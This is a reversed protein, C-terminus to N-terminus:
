LRGIGGGRPKAAQTRIDKLVQSIRSWEVPPGATPFKGTGDGRWGWAETKEVGAAGSSLVLCLVVFAFWFSFLTTKPDAPLGLFAPRM